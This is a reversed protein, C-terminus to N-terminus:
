KFPGRLGAHLGVRLPVVRLTVNPRDASEMLHRLQRRMVGSEAIPHHLALEDIVALLQLDQRSLGAQRAM